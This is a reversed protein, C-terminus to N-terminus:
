QDAKRCDAKMHELADSLRNQTHNGGFDPRAILEIIRPRLEKLDDHIEQLDDPRLIKATELFDANSLVIGLINGLESIRDAKLGTDKIFRAGLRMRKLLDAYQRLEAMLEHRGNIKQEPIEM